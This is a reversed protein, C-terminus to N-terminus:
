EFLRKIAGWTAPEVAVPAPSAVKLQFALRSQTPPTGSWSMTADGTLVFGLQVAEGTIRLIDLGDGVAHSQDNVPTGNLVLGDVLMATGANTARARIYIEAFGPDPAYTLVHAGVTFTVLDLGADYELTFPVATGNPWDYQATQAPAGTDPGLDLEFTAAGGRDGIRGEAVFAFDQVLDLMDADSTLHSTQFAAAAGPALLPLVLVLVLFLSSQIAIRM